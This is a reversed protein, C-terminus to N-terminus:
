GHPLDELMFRGYSHLVKLLMLITGSDLRRSQCIKNASSATGCSPALFGNKCRAHM